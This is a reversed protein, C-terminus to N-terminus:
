FNYYVGINYRWLVPILQKDITKNSLCKQYNFDFKVNRIFLSIGSDLFSSVGGSEDLVESDQIDRDFFEEYIGLSPMLQINEGLKLLYFLDGTMNLTNGYRFGSKNSTNIKVNGNLLLGFKTYMATYTMGVLGDWSGTGPQLDLNPMGKPRTVNTRRSAIKLGGSITLRHKFNISDSYGKTNFDLYNQLVLVDGLGHIYYNLSEDVEQTNIVYPIIIQTNWKPNWFYKGTMELRQYTERVTSNTINPEGGGHKLLLSGTNDFTGRHFRTRWRLGVNHYFDNPNIGLYVNCNDCAWASVNVVLLVFILKYKM